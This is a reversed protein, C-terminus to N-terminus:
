VCVCTCVCLHTSSDIYNSQLHHNTAAIHSSYKGNDDDVKDEVDDASGSLCTHM